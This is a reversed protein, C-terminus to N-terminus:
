LLRESLPLDHNLDNGFLVGAGRMRGSMVEGLSAGWLM